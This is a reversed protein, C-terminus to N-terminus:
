DKGNKKELIVTIEEGNRIFELETKGDVTRELDFSFGIKNMTEILEDRLTM